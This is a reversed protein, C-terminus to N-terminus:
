DSLKLRFIDRGTHYFVGDPLAFLRLERSAAPDTIRREKDGATNWVTVEGDEFIAVAIGRGTVAVDLEADDVVVEEVREYEVAGLRLRLRCLQGDRRRIGHLLVCHRNRAYGNILHYGRLSAARHILLADDGEPLVIFPTGLCDMVGFGDFFRTALTRVPWSQRISLLVREGLRDLALESMGLESAHDLAFVRGGLAVLKEAACPLPALEPRAPAPDHEGVVHQGKLAGGFVQLLVLGAGLRVLCAQGDLLRDVSQRGLGVIRQRRPIDYAVLAGDVELIAIGNDALHGVTGPLTLLHEHRLAGTTTAAAPQRRAAIKPAAAALASPPPNREGHVFVGQYWDKLASPICAFDRVATNLRVQTDFVSVQARMRAELDGRRFDPHTGKYPHIGTFVQFSVVAWAFWDAGESPQAGHFDRISAMIATARFRDIQWSDVDIVRPEVGHALWNTENGDAIVAKLTHAELVALRMNEVLRTAQTDTFGNADRWAGTCVKLLPVGPAAPMYYGIMEHREDHLIDIPAVIYPHRLNALLRIKDEMGKARAAAADLYLKYVLGKRLFVSGEGGTALHDQPQLLVEGKGPLIVRTRGNADM